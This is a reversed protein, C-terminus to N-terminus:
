ETRAITKSWLKDEPSIRNSDRMKQLAANYSYVSLIRRADGQLFKATIDRVKAMATAVLWAVAMDVYYNGWCVVNNLVDFTRLVYQEDLYNAMLNVVGYRCVFPKESACMQSFFDFYQEKECQKVKVTNGDCVAWNEITDAFQSLYTKKCEFPMKAKAVVIGKFFDLEYYAHVPLSLAEACSLGSNKAIKRIVPVRCGITPVGSNIISSNFEDYKRESAKQFELILQEYSISM